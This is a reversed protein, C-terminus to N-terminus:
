PQIPLKFNLRRGDRIVEVGVREGPRKHQIMYHFFDTERLLDDRGDVRVILDEKRFGARMAAAHPGYRGVHAVRLVMSGPNLGPPRSAGTPLPDLKMGGTTMRRLGWSTVRWSIDDARRWGSPLALVLQMPRGSRVLDVTIKGGAAPINHLVWQVDAISVLPQGNMSEIQDNAIFGARSSLSDPQVSQVTAREEPDMILGISKPHPYPFLVSEPIPQKRSWYFERVADGIQHCHICSKVVDGQYNLANTYKERLSPFEEPSSFEPRHGRKGILLKKNEPYDAHLELTAELAQALGKLSVDTLWETRHSRTGFRGYITGDANLMFVAFSQDTDYQFTALDLGNTSVQRVCVFKELLPRIVPDRDVLEDDLKVCEECPICRLVVLIPRGNARAKSFARPLDNYIWFGESEVRQRDERVKEERTKNQASSSTATLILLLALAPRITM